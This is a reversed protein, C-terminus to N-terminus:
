VSDRRCTSSRRGRCHMANGIALEIVASDREHGPMQRQRTEVVNDTQTRAVLMVDLRENSPIAVVADIRLERHHRPELSAVSPRSSARSTVILEPKWVATTHPGSRANATGTVAGDLAPVVRSAPPPEEVRVDPSASEPVRLADLGVDRSARGVPQVKIQGADISPDAAIPM